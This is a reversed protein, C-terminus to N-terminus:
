SRQSQLYGIAAKASVLLDKSPTTQRDAASKVRNAEKLSALIRDHMEKKLEEDDVKEYSTKFFNGDMILEPQAVLLEHVHEYSVEQIWTGNELM